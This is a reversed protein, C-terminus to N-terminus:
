TVARWSRAAVPCVLQPTQPYEPNPLRKRIAKYWADYTVGVPLKALTSLAFYTLAGNPRDHFVADYSVERDTCGALLVTGPVEQVKGRPPADRTAAVQALTKYQPLRSPPMFRPRAKPGLDPGVARCVTGSHCSDAILLLRVDPQKYTTITAYIEDDLVVADEFDYPCWAEDRHDPEDGDIDPMWTGHGSFSIVVSDHAVAAQLVARMQGLIGARTAAADVLTNVSFGRKTLLQATDNVDNLCGSLDNEDGPYDNIGMCLGYRM